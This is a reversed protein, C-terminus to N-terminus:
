GQTNYECGGNGPCSYRSTLSDCFCLTSGNNCMCSDTGAVGALIEQMELESLDDEHFVNIFLEKM